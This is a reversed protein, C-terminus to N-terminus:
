RVTKSLRAVSTPPIASALTSERATRFASLRNAVPTVTTVVATASPTCPMVALAKMDTDSSGGSTSIETPFCARM